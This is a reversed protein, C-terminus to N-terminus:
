WAPQQVLEDVLGRENTSPNLLLQVVSGTVDVLVRTSPMRGLPM